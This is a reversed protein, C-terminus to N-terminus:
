IRVLEDAHFWASVRHDQVDRPGGLTVGYETLAPGLRADKIDAVTGTKGKYTAWRGADPKSRECRVRDGQKFATM